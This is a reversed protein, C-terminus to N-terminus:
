ELLQSLNYYLLYTAQSKDKATENDLFLFDNKIYFSLADNLADVTLVNYWM